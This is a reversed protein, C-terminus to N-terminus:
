VGRSFTPGGQFITSWGQFINSGRQFGPFNYNEKLYVISLGIYFQLILQPSFLSHQGLQKRATPGPGGRGVPLFEQIRAHKNDSYGRTVTTTMFCIIKPRPFALIVSLLDYSTFLYKYCYGKENQLLANQFVTFVWISHRKIRFDM